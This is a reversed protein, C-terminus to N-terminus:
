RLAGVLHTSPAARSGRPGCRVVAGVRVNPIASQPPGDPWLEDILQDVSVLRGPNCVLMALVTRQKPTGLPLVMSDHRVALGGLIQIQVSGEVSKWSDFLMVYTTAFKIAIFSPARLPGSFM